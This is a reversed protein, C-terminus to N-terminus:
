DNILRFYTLPDYWVDDHLRDLQRIDYEPYKNVHKMISHSWLDGKYTIIIVNKISLEPLSASNTKARYYIQASHIPRFLLYLINWVSKYCWFLLYGSTVAHMIDRVFKYASMYAKTHEFYYGPAIMIVQQATTSNPILYCGGSHTIIIDAKTPDSIITYQKNNLLKRFRVSLMPGESIGYIIAIKKRHESM